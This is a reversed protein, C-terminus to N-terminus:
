DQPDSGVPSGSAGAPDNVQEGDTVRWNGALGAALLLKRRTMAVEVLSSPLAAQEASKGLMYRLQWTMSTRYHNRMYRNMGRRHMEGSKDHASPHLWGCCVYNRVAAPLRRPPRVRTMPVHIPGRSRPGRPRNTAWCTRCYRGTGRRRTRPALDRGCVTCLRGKPPYAGAPADTPIM